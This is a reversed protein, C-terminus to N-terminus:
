SPQKRSGFDRTNNSVVNHDQAGPIVEWACTWLDKKLYSDQKSPTHLIWNLITNHFTVHCWGLIFIWVWGSWFKTGVQNFNHYGISTHDQDSIPTEVVSRITVCCVSISIIVGVLGPNGDHIFSCVRVFFDGETIWCIWGSSRISPPSVIPADLPMPRRVLASRHRELLGGGAAEEWREDSKGSEPTQGEFRERLTKASTWLDRVKNRVPVCRNETNSIRREAFRVVRKHLFARNRM